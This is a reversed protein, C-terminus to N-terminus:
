APIAFTTTALVRSRNIGQPDELTATCSSGAPPFVKQSSGAGSSDLPVNIVTGYGSDCSIRVSLATRNGGGSVSFVVGKDASVTATFGGKKGTTSGPTAFATTSASVTATSTTQTSTKTPAADDNTITVQAFGDALNYPTAVTLIQVGFTETFEYTTDGTVYVTITASSSGAAFTASGNAAVYDSGAVASADYTTWGLSTSQSLDGTRTLTLTVATQGSNGETVTADGIKIEPAPAAIPFAADDTRVRLRDFSTTGGNALTGFQGDVADGNYTYSGLVSGNVTTTVVTGKIVLNLTYDTGATLAKAYSAEVVWGRRPDVHGVIVRQGAIDLAVFKYDNTAYSDFLLGGISATRLVTELELYDGPDLGGTKIVATSLAIPDVITTAGVYRGSGVNWAGSQAGTFDTASGDDFYETRDLTLTPPLVQLAVNDM